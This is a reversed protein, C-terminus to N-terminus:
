LYKRSPKLIDYAVVCHPIDRFQTCNANILFFFSWPLSKKKCILPLAVTTLEHSTFSLEITPAYAKSIWAYQFPAWRSIDAIVMGVTNRNIGNETLDKIIVAKIGLLEYMYDSFTFHFPGMDAFRM